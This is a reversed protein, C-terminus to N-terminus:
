SPTSFTSLWSSPLPMWGFEKPAGVLLETPERGALKGKAWPGSREVSGEETVAVAHHRPRASIVPLEDLFQAAAVEGAMLDPDPDRLYETGGSQPCWRGPKLEPQSVNSACLGPDVRVLDPPTGRGNGLFGAVIFVMSLVTRKRVPHKVAAEFSSRVATAAIM